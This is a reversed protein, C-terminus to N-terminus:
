RVRGARPAAVGHVADNPAPSRRLRWQAQAATTSGEQRGTLLVPQQARWCLAARRAHVSAEPHRRIVALLQEEIDHIKARSM